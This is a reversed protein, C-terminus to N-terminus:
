HTETQIDCTGSKYAHITDYACRPCPDVKINLTTRNLFIDISSIVKGTLKTGCLNCITLLCIHPEPQQDEEMRIKNVTDPITHESM